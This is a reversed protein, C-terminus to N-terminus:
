VQRGSDGLLIIQMQYRGVPSTVLNDVAFDGNTMVNISQNISQDGYKIQMEFPLAIYM